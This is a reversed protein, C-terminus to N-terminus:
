HTPTPIKENKWEKLYANSSFHNIPLPDKDKFYFYVLIVNVSLVASTMLLGLIMFLTSAYPINLLCTLNTIALIYTCPVVAKQFHVRIGTQRNKAQHWPIIDCLRIFAYGAFLFSLFFLTWSPTQYHQWVFFVFTVIGLVEMLRVILSERNFFFKLMPTLYHRFLKPDIEKVKKLPLKVAWFIPM